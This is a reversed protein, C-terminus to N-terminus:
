MEIQPDRERLRMLLKNAVAAPVTRDREIRLAFALDALREYKNLERRKALVDLTDEVLARGVRHAMSADILVPGRGRVNIYSDEKFEPATWGYQITEDEIRKHLARLKTGQSWTGVKGRVCERVLVRNRADYRTGKVIHKSTSPMKAALRLWTAEEGLSGIGRAVKFARGSSDCFVIGTMGAGIFELEGTAGARRARDEADDLESDIVRLISSPVQERVGALGGRKRGATLGVAAGVLVLGLAVGFWRM